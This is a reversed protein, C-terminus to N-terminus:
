SWALIKFKKGSTVTVVVNTATHTGETAAYVGVTAVSTDYPIVLVDSPAVGLGHAINQASGTGTTIISVFKSPITSGSLRVDGLVAASGAAATAAGIFTNGSSVLTVNNATDDWYLSDGVVWATGADKVLEHVGTTKGEFPLTAAVTNTAVVFIGLVKYGLGSTVGGAPATLTLIDGEQKYNNM